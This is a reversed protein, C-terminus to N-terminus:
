PLRLRWAVHDPTRAHPHPDFQASSGLDYLEPHKACRVPHLYRGRMPWIVPRGCNQFLRGVLQRVLSNPNTATRYLLQTMAAVAASNKLLNAGNWRNKGGDSNDRACGGTVIDALAIHCLIKPPHFTV